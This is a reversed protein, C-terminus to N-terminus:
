PSERKREREIASVAAKLANLVALDTGMATAIREMLELCHNHVIKGSLYGEFPTVQIISYAVNRARAVAKAKREEVLLLWHRQEACALAQCEGLGLVRYEQRLSAVLSEEESSLVVQRLWGRDIAAKVIWPDTKGLREGSIVVEEFVAPTLAVPGYVGHVAELGNVRAMVILSSADIVTNM